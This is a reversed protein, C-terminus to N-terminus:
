KTDARNVALKPSRVIEVSCRAYRAVSESVSGLLARDFLSRGHSGVVIVDAGWAEASAVIETKPDGEAVGVTVTFGAGRLARAAKEVLQAARNLCDLRMETINPIYQEASKENSFYNMLDVVTLVHVETNATKIRDIVAQTAAESFKSGDIALLIKM